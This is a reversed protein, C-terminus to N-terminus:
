AVSNLGGDAGGNLVQQEGVVKALEVCSLEMGPREDWICLAM